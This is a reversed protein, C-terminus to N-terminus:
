VLLFGFALLGVLLLIGLILVAWEVPKISPRPLSRIEGDYGRALMAMYIRDARELSRLFLSGAMGGTVRGRWTIKGGPKYGPLGSESSRAERAQILRLAEDVIVFLYRWMLGIIAVLLRPLRLSRMAGLIDPFPTTTALLIAIQMSIWSKLAVSLFRDLGPQTIVLGLPLHALPEGQITFLVPLAALVFPLALLARKVYFVIGLDSLLEITLSLALLLIYIPWIGTPTLAVTLIFTVALALKIRSDLRHILSRSEVYPDLYHVPM